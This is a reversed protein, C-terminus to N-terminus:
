KRNADSNAKLLSLVEKLVKEAELNLALVPKLTDLAAPGDTQLQAIAQGAEKPSAFGLSQLL